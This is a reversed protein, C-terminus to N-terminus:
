GTRPDGEKTGIKLTIMLILPLIINYTLQITGLMSRLNGETEAQVEAVPIESGQRQSLM